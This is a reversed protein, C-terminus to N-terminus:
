PRRRYTNRKSTHENWLYMTCMGLAFSVIILLIIEFM